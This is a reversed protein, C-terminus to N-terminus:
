LVDGFVIQSKEESPGDIMVKRTLKGVQEGGGNRMYVRVYIDGKVEAAVCVIVDVVVGKVVFVGGDNEEVTTNM